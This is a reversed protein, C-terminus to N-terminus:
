LSKQPLEKRFFYMLAPNQVEYYTERCKQSEHFAYFACFDFCGSGIPYALGRSINESWSDSNVSYTFLQDLIPYPNVLFSTRVKTWSHETEFLILIGTFQLSSLFAEAAQNRPKMLIRWSSEMRFRSEVLKFLVAWWGKSADTALCGFCTADILDLFKAIVWNGALAKSFWNGTEIRFNTYCTVLSRV